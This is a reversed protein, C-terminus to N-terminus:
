LVGMSRRLGGHVGRLAKRRGRIRFMAEVIGGHLFGHRLGCLRFGGHLSAGTPFAKAGVVFPTPGRKM